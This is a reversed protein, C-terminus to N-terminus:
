RRMTSVAPWHHLAAGRLGSGTAHVDCLCGPVATPNGADVAAGRAPDDDAIGKVPGVLCGTADTEGELLQEVVVAKGGDGDVDGDPKGFHAFVATAGGIAGGTGYETFAPRRYEGDGGAGGDCTVVVADGALGGEGVGVRWALYRLLGEVQKRFPHDVYRCNRRLLGSIFQEIDATTIDSILRDGFQDNFMGLREHYFGVTRPSTRGTSYDLLAQIAMSVTLKRESALQQVM